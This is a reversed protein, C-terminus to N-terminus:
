FGEGMFYDFIAEKDKSNLARITAIVAENKTYEPPNEETDTDNEKDEKDEKTTEEIKAARAKGKDKKPGGGDAQKKNPCNKGIHGQKGCRFCRGEEFYKRREEDSLRKGQWKPKSDTKAVDVEMADPDKQSRKNPPVYKKQRNDRVIDNRKGYGGILTVREQDRVVEERAAEIWPTLVHKNLPPNRNVVKNALWMPLGQVFETVTNQDNRTWGARRVLLEFKSVYEDVTMDKMSLKRLDMDARQVKSTDNWARFFDDRFEGWLNEDNPDRGDIHVKEQLIDLQDNAWEEVRDGKMYSCAMAVRSYPVRMVENQFNIIFYNNFQRIFRETKSRDGKFHEPADGKM